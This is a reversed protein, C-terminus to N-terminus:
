QDVGKFAMAMIDAENKPAQARGWRAQNRDFQAVAVAWGPFQKEPHASYHAQVDAILGDARDGYIERLEAEAQPSLSALSVYRETDTVADTVTETDTDTHCQLNHMHMDGKQKGWRANAAARRKEVTREYKDNDRDVQAAMFDFAMKTVNDMKPIDEERQYRMLAAFLRGLQNDELGKLINWADTHIILTEKKM